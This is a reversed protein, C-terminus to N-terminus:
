ARAAGSRRSSRGQLEAQVGPVRHHQGIELGLDAPPDLAQVAYPIEGLHQGARGVRPDPLIM